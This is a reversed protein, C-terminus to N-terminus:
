LSANKHKISFLLILAATLVIVAVATMDKFSGFYKATYGGAVPGIIQGLGFFATLYGVLKTSHGEYLQKGLNMTLTVIGMFTLGFFFASTYLMTLNKSALSIILGAIQLGFALKLATLNGYRKGFVTWFVTSPTAAIGVVLWTSIGFYFNHTIEQMMAVMFTGMIIYGTGFFGYAIMLKIANNDFKVLNINKFGTNQIIKGGGNKVIQPLIEGSAAYDHISTDEKLWMLPFICLFLSLMGLGIWSAQVGGMYNFIPISVATMVIGIGVGGYIYGFSHINKMGILSDLVIASAAVFIFASSFGSFFRLFFWLLHSSTLGMALTTLVNISLNALLIKYGNHRALVVSLVAGAFYGAYNVSALNGELINSIHFDSKMLPLMPTYAFRSIGLAIILSAIGAAIIKYM